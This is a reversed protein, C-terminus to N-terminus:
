HDDKTQDSVWKKLLPGVVIIALMGAVFWFGNTEWIATKEAVQYQAFPYGDGAQQALTLILDIM